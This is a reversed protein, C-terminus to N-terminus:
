QKATPNIQAGGSRLDDIMGKSIGPVNSIDQWSRFPWAKVLEQARERGVMPLDAIEDVSASNLDIVRNEHHTQSYSRPEQEGPHEHESNM